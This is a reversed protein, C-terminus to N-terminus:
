PEADWQVELSVSFSQPMANPNGATANAALIEYFQLNLPADRVSRVGGLKLHARDAEIGALRGAEDFAKRRAEDLSAKPEAVFFAITPVHNDTNDGIVDVLAGLNELDRTKITVTTAVQFGDRKPQVRVPQSMQSPVLNQSAFRPTFLLPALTIDRELIGAGRLAEVLRKLKLKQATMADQAFSGESNVAVMIRASDAEATVTGRGTASITRGSPQSPAAEDALAFRGALCAVVLLSAAIFHKPILRAEARQTQVPGRPNARGQGHAS